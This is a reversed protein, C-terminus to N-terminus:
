IDRKDEREAGVGDLSGGNRGRTSDEMSGRGGIEARNELARDRM